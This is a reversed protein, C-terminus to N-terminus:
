PLAGDIATMLASVRADLAALDLSEGISYFSLRADSRLSAAGTSTNRAFVYFNADLPSLSSTSITADQSDYRADFATSLNRTSGLFGVVNGAPSPVVIGLSGRRNRFVLGNNSASFIDNFDSGSAIFQSAILTTDTNITASETTYVSFHISNQPVSNSNTNSNLHKTTRDGKLGTKRDYDASVFNFNTPATGKLPVLAGALTRAGAMICSAKIANWIGDTKCGVVFGNIATQVAPELAQTDAAEVAAIYAAADPDVAPAAAGFVQVAGLYAAEVNVAGLKLAAITNAGLKIM